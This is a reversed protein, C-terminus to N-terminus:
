SNKSGFDNIRQSRDSAFEIGIECEFTSHPLLVAFEYETFTSIKMCPVNHGGYYLSLIKHSDM